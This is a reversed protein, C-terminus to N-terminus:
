STTVVEGQGPALVRALFEQKESGTRVSILDGIAGDTLAIVRTAASLGGVRVTLTLVDGRRVAPTAAIADGTLITAAPLSRTVHQGVVEEPIRLPEGRLATLARMEVGVDGPQLAENRRLARRTVLVPGQVEARFSIPYTAFRTGDISVVVECSWTLRRAESVRTAATLTLKGQPVLLPRPPTVPTLTVEDGPPLSLATRVAEQGAEALQEGTVTQAPRLVRVAAPLKWKPDQADEGHAQLKLRLDASTLLRSEGPKLGTLVATRGLETHALAPLLDAFCVADGSVKVERAAAATVLFLVLCLALLLRLKM